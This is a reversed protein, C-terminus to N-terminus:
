TVIIAKQSNPTQSKFFLLSMETGFVMFAVDMMHYELFTQFLMFITPLLKKGVYIGFSM